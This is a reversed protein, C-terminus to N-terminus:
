PDYRKSYLEGVLNSIQHTGQMEFARVNNGAQIASNKAHEAVTLRPDAPAKEGFHDRNETRFYRAGETVEHRPIVAGFGQKTTVIPRDVLSLEAINYKNIMSLVPKEKRVHVKPNQIEQQNTTKLERFGDDCILHETEQKPKRHFRGLPAPIGSSSLCNIDPEHARRLKKDPHKQYTQEHALRLEYWNEIM